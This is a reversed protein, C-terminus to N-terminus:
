PRVPAAPPSILACDPPKSDDFSLESAHSMVNRLFARKDPCLTLAEARVKEPDRQATAIARQLIIRFADKREGAAPCVEIRHAINERTTAGLLPLGCADFAYTLMVDEYFSVSEDQNPLAAAAGTGVAPPSPPPPSPTSIAPTTPPSAVPAAPGTVLESVSDCGVLLTATIALIAALPMMRM